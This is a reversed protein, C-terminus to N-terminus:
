CRDRKVGKPILKITLSRKEREREGRGKERWGDMRGRTVKSSFGGTQQPRILADRKDENEEERKEDFADDDQCQFSEHQESNREADDCVVGVRM